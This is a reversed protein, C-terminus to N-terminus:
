RPACSTVRVPFVHCAIFDCIVHLVFNRNGLLNAVGRAGCPLMFSSISIVLIIFIIITIIIVDPIVLTVLSISVHSVSAFKAESTMRAITHAPFIM